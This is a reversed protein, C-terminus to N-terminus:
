ASRRASRSLQRGARLRQLRKVTHPDHALARETDILINLAEFYATMSMDLKERVVQEKIGPYQWWKSEIALMTAEAPSLDLM